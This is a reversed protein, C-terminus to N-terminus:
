HFGKNEGKDEKRGVRKGDGKCEAIEPSEGEQEWDVTVGLVGDTGIWSFTTYPLPDSHPYNLTLKRLNSTYDRSLERCLSAKSEELTIGRWTCLIGNNVALQVRTEAKAGGMEEVEEEEGEEEQGEHGDNWM